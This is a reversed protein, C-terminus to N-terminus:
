GWAQPSLQSQVPVGRRIRRNVGVGTPVVDKLGGLAGTIKKTVGSLKDEGTFIVKLTSKATM